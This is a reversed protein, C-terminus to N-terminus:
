AHARRPAALRSSRWFYPSRTAQFGHALFLERWWERPRLTVRHRDGPEYSESTSSYFHLHGAIRSCHEVLGPLERPELYVLSNTFLLDFREGRAALAPVYDRMDARAIRRRLRAPIRAHAWASIECGAARVRWASEFDELVRGTATGLVVVSRARIGLRRATRLCHEIGSHERYLEDYSGRGCYNRFYSADM